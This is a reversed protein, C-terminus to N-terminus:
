RRAKRGKRSPYFDNYNLRVALFSMDSSPQEELADLLYVTCEKFEVTLRDMRERIAVLNEDPLDAQSEDRTMDYLRNGGGTYQSLTYAFLRDMQEKYLLMTKLIDHLLALCDREAEKTKSSGLLAKEMISAVYISHANMIGDLDAAPDALQTQLENWSSEIVEFLIYYQLQCVFHIMEAIVCRVQKWDATVVTVQNLMGREATMNRRWASSLTYEVRSLRWLFNFIKLYQRAAQETLIVDLPRELRYELTFSEWGVSGKANDLMRADLCTLVHEPEFQANSSQIADSLSSTLNHRHLTSAPHDLSDGLREMLVGVFDGANLLIYRKMALLHDMLKFKDMILNKLHQSTTSYASDMSRELSFTDGYSLVQFASKSHEVVFAADHCNYRTFNLTRGILFIKRGLAPTIWAPRMADVLAFKGRWADQTSQVRKSSIAAQVPQVLFELHPDDLDGGYIWKALMEYFPKSIAVLVDQAFQAVSPDGHKSLAHVANMLTGGQKDDVAHLIRAMLRLVRVDPRIWLAIRKLTVQLQATAQRLAAEIAAVKELYRTLHTQLHANLSQRILGTEKTATSAQTAISRYLLGAECFGTLLSLLPVSVRCAVQATEKGAEGQFHIGSTSIGQLTFAIKPLFDREHQPETLIPYKGTGNNM